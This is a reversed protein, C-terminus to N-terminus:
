FFALVGLLCFYIRSALFKPYNLTDLISLIQLHLSFGLFGLATLTILKHNTISLGGLIEFYPYFIFENKFLLSILVKFIILIGLINFLIRTNKQISEFFFNLFSFSSSSTKISSIDEKKNFLHMYISALVIYFLYYLGISFHVQNSILITYPLSLTSFTCILNEYELKSIQNTAYSHYIIKTSAPAGCLLSILIIFASKPSNIKFLVKFVPFLFRSFKHVLPMQELLDIFVFSPYMTPLLITFWLHSAAVVENAVLNPSTILLYLIFLILITM